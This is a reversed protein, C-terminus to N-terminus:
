SLLGVIGALLDVALDVPDGHRTPIFHQCIEDSAATLFVISTLVLFTKWNKPWQRGSGARGVLAGYVWYEAAHFLKDIHRVPPLVGPAIRQSSVYFIFCAWAVVPAWAWWFSIPDPIKKAPNQM